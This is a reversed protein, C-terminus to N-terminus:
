TFMWALYYALWTSGVDIAILMAMFIAQPRKLVGPRHGSRLIFEDFAPDGTAAGLSASSSQSGSGASGAVPAAAGAKGAALANTRRTQSRPSQQPTTKPATTTPDGTPMM